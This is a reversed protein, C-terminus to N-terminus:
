QRLAREVQQRVDKGKDDAVAMLFLCKGKSLKAWLAGINRKERTDDFQLFKKGKYEVVLMRGDKLECVFDPYFKGGALPLWFSAAGCRELNRVWHKVERASDIAIACEIEENNLHAIRERPFYHKQFQYAGAYYPPRSPYYGPKFEYFFKDDLCVGSGSFVGRQYGEKEAIARYKKIHDRIARALLYQHRVLGTLTYDSGERLLDRVIDGVFKVLQRQPIDQHRLERDLWAVLGQETAGIPAQNLDLTREDAVFYGLKSKKDFDIKYLRIKERLEPNEIKAPCGSLDWGALDLFLEPEALMIEEQHQLCLMPVGAFKEGKESPAEASQLRLNHDEIARKINKQRKSDSKVTALIAKEASETVHGSVRVLTVTESQKNVSIQSQEQQSLATVDPTTPLDLVIAGGAQEGKFIEQQPGSLEPRLFEALEMKEFGMDILRDTLQQAALSFQPTALHAYARNLDENERRKAYPMRMVRGLLQEAGTRSSVQKVSCFVYAFSCDWGEKLAENTIIYEIECKPNFLNVGDLERTNGTAVAIKAEPIDWESMLHKKLVKVTVERDKNEAQFLAIPRIYASDGRAQKALKNRTLVSDRVASRWDPHEALIIPLKIMEESKLEAAAVHFLVNSGSADSSDPTATFEIIAAPCVRSLTEFSLKTRANHAEDVIAIPRHFALLNAFSFKVKGIEGTQLGNERVDEASVKEMFACKPHDAPIKSFHPEFDERYAYVKRGSTDTVRLNAITSVVVIAQGGIDQPRIQDVEDIDLVRVRNRFSEDLKARYPHGPTKLADVTQTRIANTPVLWLVIPYNTELYDRAAAIAWSALITKGGGTPIRICVYPTDEFGQNRYPLGPMEQGRLTEAYAAEVPSKRCRGLFRELTEVARRQYDKLSFM